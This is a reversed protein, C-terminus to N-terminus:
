HSNWLELLSEATCRANLPHSEGGVKLIITPYARVNNQSALEQGEGGDEANHLKCTKDSHQEMFKQIEPKAQKCYGCWDVLFCHLEKNSGGSTFKENQKQVYMVVLVVLVILLVLIIINEADMKPMQMKPMKPMKMKGM